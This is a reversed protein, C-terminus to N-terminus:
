PAGAFRVDDVQRCADAATTEQKTGGLGALEWKLENTLGWGATRKASIGYVTLLKEIADFLKKFTDTPAAEGPHPLYVLRLMGGTGPPVVEYVIPNKGARRKRDHPNIVEFGVKDFWTPRFALAGREFDEDEGKENGFLHVIWDPDQWGRFLNDHKELHELLGAEMRCAWRLLGKWSAASMFPVGFVRDKRLPNDLVHFPRDDRSYWPTQLTFQVTLAFWGPVTLTSDPDLKLDDPFSASINKAQQQYTRRFEERSKDGKTPWVLCEDAMGSVLDPATKASPNIQPGHLSAYYDYVM